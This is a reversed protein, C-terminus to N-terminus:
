QLIHIGLRNQLKILIYALLLSGAFVWIAGTQMYLSGIGMQSFGKEIITAVAIHFYYINGSYKAGIVEAWSGAGFSKHFLSISFLAIAFLFSGIYHGDGLNCSVHRLLTQEMIAIILSLLTILAYPLRSPLKDEHKKLLYGASMFPLAYSISNFVYILSQGNYASLLFSYKGWILATLMLPILLWLYKGLHWRILFMFIVQAQLMAMLFWLHVTTLQGYVLFHWIQEWSRVTNGHNPLLIIWYFCTLGALIPAIKKISHWARRAVEEENPTYLFYGSILFFIPVASLTLPYVWDKFTGLPIHGIVVLLAALAKAVYLSSIPKRQSPTFSTVTPTAM